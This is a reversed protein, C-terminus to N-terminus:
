LTINIREWRLMPIFGLVKNNLDFSLWIYFAKGIIYKEEVPGFVRSDASGDRNDGMLFYKNKPVVLSEFETKPNAPYYKYNYINVSQTLLQERYEESEISERTVLDHDIASSVYTKDLVEGNISMTKDKYKLQDGPLGVVRKILFNGSSPQFFVVVDGRKIESVQFLKTFSVPLKLFYSAKNVFIYDGEFLTPKMSGSPIKYPEIVFSRVCFVLFLIPFFSRGWYLIPNENGISEYEGKYGSSIRRRKKFFLRDIFWIIGTFLTAVVIFINFYM